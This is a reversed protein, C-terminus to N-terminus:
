GGMVGEGGKEGERGREREGEREKERERGGQSFTIQKNNATKRCPQLKCRAWALCKQATNREDMDQSLGGYCSPRPYVCVYVCLCWVVCVCVCWMCVCWVCVECVGERVCACVSCVCVCVCVCVASSWHPWRLLAAVESKYKTQM